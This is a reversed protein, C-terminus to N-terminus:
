PGQSQDTRLDRPQPMERPRSRRPSQHPHRQRRDARDDPVNLCPNGAVVEPFYAVQEFHRGCRQDHDIVPTQGIVHGRADRRDVPHDASDRIDFSLLEAFSAALRVELQGGSSWGPETAM